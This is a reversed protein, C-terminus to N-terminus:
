AYGLYCVASFYGVVQAGIAIDGADGTTKEPTPKWAGTQWAIAWGAAGIVCIALVSLTNKIWTKQPETEDLIKALSDEAQGHSRHSSRRRQATDSSEDAAASHAATETMGRSLLPTTPDPANDEEDHDGGDPLGSRSQQQQRQWQKHAADQRANKVNYYVTQGILVTDSICFYVAIAVIVPVLHAWLAGILNAADGVFWIGLFTLSLAEASGCKYNEIM